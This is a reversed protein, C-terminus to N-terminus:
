FSFTATVAIATVDNVDETADDGGDDLRPVTQRGRKAEFRAQESAKREGFFGV